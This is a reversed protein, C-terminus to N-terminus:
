PLTSKEFLTYSEAGGCKVTLTYTKKFDVKDFRLTLDDDGLEVDDKVGKVQKYAGDTSELTFTDDKASPDLPDIPLTVEFEDETSEFAAVLPQAGTRSLDLSPVRAVLVYEWEGRDSAGPKVEFSGRYKGKDIQGDVRSILSLPAEASTDAM